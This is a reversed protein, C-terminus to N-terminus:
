SCPQSPHKPLPPNLSPTFKKMNEKCGAMTPPPSNTPLCSLHLATLSGLDHAVVPMPTEEGKEPQVKLAM